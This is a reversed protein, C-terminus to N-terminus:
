VSVDPNDPPHHPPRVRDDLTLRLRRRLSSTSLRQANREELHGYICTRATQALNSFAEPFKMSANTSGAPAQGFLASLVGFLHDLEVLLEFELFQARHGTEPPNAARQAVADRPFRARALIQCVPVRLHPRQDIAFLLTRQTQQFDVSGRLLDIFKLAFIARSRSQFAAEREFNEFCETNGAIVLGCERLGAGELCKENVTLGSHLGDLSSPSQM